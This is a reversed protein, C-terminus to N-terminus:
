RASVSLPAQAASRPQGRIPDTAALHAQPSGSVLVGVHNADPDTPNKYTDLEVAVAPHVGVFGLGGGEFGEAAGEAGVADVPPRVVEISPGLTTEIETFGVPAVAVGADQARAITRDEVM